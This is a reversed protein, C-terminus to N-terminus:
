VYKQFIRPDDIANYSSKLPISPQINKKNAYFLIYSKVLLVMVKIKEFPM